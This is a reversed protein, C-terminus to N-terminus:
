CIEEIEEEDDDEENVCCTNNNIEGSDKKGEKQNVGHSESSM